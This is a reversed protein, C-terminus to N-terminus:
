VFLVKRLKLKCFNFFPFLFSPTYLLVIGHTWFSLCMWYNSFIRFNLKKYNYRDYGVAHLKKRYLHKVLIQKFIQGKFAVIASTSVSENPRLLCLCHNIEEVFAKIPDFSFAGSANVQLCPDNIVSVSLSKYKTLADMVFAYCLFASGKYERYLADDNERGNKIICTSVLTSRAGYQKLFQDASLEENDGLRVGDWGNLFVVSSGGNRLHRMISRIVGPRVFDDDSLLWFYEGQSLEKCKKFNGFYGTNVEQRFLKYDISKYLEVYKSIVAQTDDDSANDSLVLNVEGPFELLQPILLGLSQDLTSSRNWTPMAVTLLPVKTCM